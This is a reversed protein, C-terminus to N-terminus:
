YKVDAVEKMSESKYELYKCRQEKWIVDLLGSLQYHM